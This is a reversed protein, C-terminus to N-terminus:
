KMYSEIEEHMAPPAEDLALKFYENAEEPNDENYYIGKLFYVQWLSDNIKELKDISEKASKKYNRDFNLRTLYYLADVHAENIKLASEFEEIAADVDRPSKKMHFLGQLVM